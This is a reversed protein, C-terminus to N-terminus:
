PNYDYIVYFHNFTIHTGDVIQTELYSETRSYHRTMYYLLFYDKMKRPKYFNLGSTVLLFFIFASIKLRNLLM